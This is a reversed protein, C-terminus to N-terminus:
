AKQDPGTTPEWELVCAELPALVVERGILRPHEGTHTSFRVRWTGPPLEADIRVRAPKPFFNLAVLMRQQPHERLFILARQPKKQVPRWRGRRLALSSRRLALVQRYTNYVSGPEQRQLAVNRTKWDPNLRLWPEAIPKPTDGSGTGEPGDGERAASFGAGAHPTWPMPTRAPDRGKYFPWYTRGPPDVIEAYPIATNALGLEEGYYLYPTGRLTLLLVGAVRARADAHRDPGVLPATRTLFRDVDHNNLVHCPWATAPLAAEWDLLAKQFTNPHWKLKLWTFNFAQHLQDSGDGVYRAALQADHGMVEGVMMREPYQDVLHRLQQLVGRMEPRDRDYLHRQMDFARLGFTFPNNRLLEDKFYCNVVDLRFGDVGRELWFRMMKLMRAVVEPNRWNLDPQQKLFMHYYYQSSVPDWEWGSGGFVAKWQNPPRGGKSPDHWLYWDRKPSDRRSSSEVFWPHLHSTHNMVLDMIVRIGRAHAAQVLRDFVELSGFLPDIDEYDSIDYGFDYGPSPYIPSIWLADVGLSDPTGNLYDLHDLIGQLDGTGDGNGDAFSRPYMQYIVGDRWWLFADSDTSTTQHSPTKPLNEPIKM